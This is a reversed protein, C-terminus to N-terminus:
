DKKTNDFYEKIQILRADVDELLEKVYNRELEDVSVKQPTFYKCEVKRKRGEQNKTVSCHGYPVKYARYSLLQYHQIFHTCNECLSAKKM